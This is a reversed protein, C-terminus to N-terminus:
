EVELEGYHMVLGAWGSKCGLLEDYIDSLNEELEGLTHGQTKYDPLEHLYGVYLGNNEYYSYKKRDM